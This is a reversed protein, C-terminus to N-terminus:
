LIENIIYCLITNCSINAIHPGPAHEESINSIPSNPVSPLVSSLNERLYNELIYIM